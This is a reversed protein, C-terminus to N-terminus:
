GVSARLLSSTVSREQGSQNVSQDASLDRVICVGLQLGVQLSLDVVREGSQTVSHSISQNVVSQSIQCGMSKIQSSKELFVWRHLQSNRTIERRM